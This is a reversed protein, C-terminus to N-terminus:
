PIHELHGFFTGGVWFLVESGFFYRRSLLAGMMTYHSILLFQSFLQPDYKSLFVGCYSEVKM